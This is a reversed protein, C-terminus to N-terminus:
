TSATAVAALRATSRYMRACSSSTLSIRSPGRHAGFPKGRYGFLIDIYGAHSSLALARNGTSRFRGHQVDCGAVGIVLAIGFLIWNIVPPTTFPTLGYTPIATTRTTNQRGASRM